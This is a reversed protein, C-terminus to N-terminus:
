AYHLTALDLWFIFEKHSHYKMILTFKKVDIRQSVMRIISFFDRLRPSKKEQCKFGKKKSRIARKSTKGNKLRQIKDYVTSKPIRLDMFHQFTFKKLKKRNKLFFNIFEKEFLKLEVWKIIIIKQFFALININM